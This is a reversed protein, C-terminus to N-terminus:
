APGRGQVGHVVPPSATPSREPRCTGPSSPARASWPTPASRSEPSSSQPVLEPVRGDPERWTMQRDNVTRVGAGLFVRDALVSSSTIHSGPSCRVWAAASGRPM